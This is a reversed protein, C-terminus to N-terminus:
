ILAKCRRNAEIVPNSGALDVGPRLHVMHAPVRYGIRAAGALSILARSNAYM